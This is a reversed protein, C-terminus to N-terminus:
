LDEDGALPGSPQGPRAIPTQIPSRRGLLCGLPSRVPVRANSPQLSDAISFGLACGVAWGLLWSFSGSSHTVPSSVIVPAWADYKFVKHSSACSSNWASRLLASADLRM